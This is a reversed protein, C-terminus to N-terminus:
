FYFSICKQINWAISRDQEGFKGYVNLHDNLQHKARLGYMKGKVTTTTEWSGSKDAGSATYNNKNTYGLEVSLQPIISIGVTMVGGTESRFNVPQNINEESVTRLAEAYFDVACAPTSFGILLLIQIFNLAKKTSERMNTCM